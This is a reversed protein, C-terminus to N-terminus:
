TTPEAGPGHGNTYEPPYDPVQIESPGFFMAFPDPGDYIGHHQAMPVAIALTSVIVGGWAGGSLMRELVRKVAANQQALEAWAGALAPGRQAIVGACHMDGMAAFPLAFGGILEGLRAELSGKRPPRPQAESIPPAQQQEGSPPAQGGASPPRRRTTRRPPTDAM